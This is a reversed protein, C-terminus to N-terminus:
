QGLALQQQQQKLALQRVWAEQQLVLAWLLQQVWARRQQQVL